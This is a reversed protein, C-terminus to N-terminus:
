GEPWTFALGPLREPPEVVELSVGIDKETDFYAYVGDGDAGFGSGAQIVEYGGRAMQEVALPVSEVVVGLHQMGEGRVDLWERHVGPGEVPQVLELQPSGDSLAVLVSFETPEGRYECSAHTSSGFRFCRWQRQGFVATIRELGARVDRVVFAVQFIPGLPTGPLDM